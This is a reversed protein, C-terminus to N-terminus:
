RLELLIPGAPALARASMSVTRKKRTEISQTDSALSNTFQTHTKRSMQGGNQDMKVWLTVSHANITRMEQRKVQKRARKVGKTTVKKSTQPQTKGQM